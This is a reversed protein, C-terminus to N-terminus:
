TYSKYLTFGCFNTTGGTSLITLRLKDNLGFRQKGKPIKIWGQFLLRPASTDEAFLGMTTYLINKKNSWDHLAAMNAASPAATDGESKFVVMQGSTKVSDGIAWMELYVAKVISGEEVESAIDVNEPAVSQVIQQTVIAASTASFISYM